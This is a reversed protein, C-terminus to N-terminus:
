SSPVTLELHFTSRITSTLITPMILFLSGAENIPLLLTFHKLFARSQAELPKQLVSSTVSLSLLNTSTSGFSEGFATNTLQYVISPKKSHLYKDKLLDAVQLCIESKGQGGLGTIVFRKQKKAFTTDSCLVTQIRSLLETRGTFLSNLTRPVQFYVNGHSNTSDIACPTHNHVILM